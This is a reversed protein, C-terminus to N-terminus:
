RYVGAMTFVDGVKINESQITINAWGGTEIKGTVDAEHLRSPMYRIPVSSQSQAALRKSQGFRM